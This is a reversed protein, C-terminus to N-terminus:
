SVPSIRDASSEPAPIQKARTTLVLFLAILITMFLRVGEARISLTGALSHMINLHFHLLIVALISRQSVRLLWAYIFAQPIYSLMYLWFAMSGIPWSSQVTGPIFFLPIHWVAWVTGLIVNAQLSGFRGELHEQAYGRWGLEESVPGFIFQFSLLSAVLLPQRRIEQLLPLPPIAGLPVMDAVISVLLLVLPFLVILGWGALSIGRATAARKRLSRRVDYDTERSILLLATITPGFGGLLYPFFAAPQSITTGSGIAMLWLSWSILFTWGFFSWLKGSGPSSTM